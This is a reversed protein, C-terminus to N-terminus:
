LISCRRQDESSTDTVNSAKPDMLHNYTYDAPSLGYKERMRTSWTDSRIGKSDLSTSSSAQGGQPNLLPQRIPGRIVANDDDSEYEVKQTPVMARLIMSLLLSLAQIIVVTLGVWKCLDINDEVFSQLREIEGTPDYPLDEKWHKDVVMFGVLAAELLILVTTLLTYFCLCCGNIAETAIHGICTVSCLLIGIGMFSYIFWPTPLKHLNFDLGDELGSSIEVGLELASLDQPVRVRFSNSDSSLIPQNQSNLLLHFSNEPSPSSPPPPLPTPIHKNWQNLMWISYIIITIGIFTQLFNLFKLIFAIFSRCFSSCSASNSASRRSM